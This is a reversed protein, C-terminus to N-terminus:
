EMKRECECRAMGGCPIGEEGKEPKPHLLTIAGPNNLIQWTTWKREEDANFCLIFNDQHSAHCMIDCVRQWNNAMLM